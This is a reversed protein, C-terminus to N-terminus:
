QILILQLSCYVTNTSLELRLDHISVNRYNHSVTFKINGIKIAQISVGTPLYRETLLLQWKFVRVTNKNKHTEGNKKLHARGAM